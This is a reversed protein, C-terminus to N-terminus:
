KMKSSKGKMMAWPLLVVVFPDSREIVFYQGYEEDIEYWLSFADDGARVDAVLRVKGERYLLYPKSIVVRM